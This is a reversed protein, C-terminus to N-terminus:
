LGALRGAARVVAAHVAEAPSGELVLLRRPDFLHKPRFKHRSWRWSGEFQVGLFYGMQWPQRNRVRAQFTARPHCLELLTGRPIETDVEICAGRSSIDELIATRKRSRGSEDRWRIEILDACLLRAETRREQMGTEDASALESLPLIRSFIEGVKGLPKYTQVLPVM